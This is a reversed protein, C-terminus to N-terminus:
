RTRHRSFPGSSGRTLRLLDRLQREREGEVVGVDVGEGAFLRDRPCGAPDEGERSAVAEVFREVGPRRCRSPSKETTPTRRLLQVERPLHLGDVLLNREGLDAGRVLARRRKGVCWTERQDQLGERSSSAPSSVCRRSTRM